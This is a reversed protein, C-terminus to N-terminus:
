LFRQIHSRKLWGVKDFATWLKSAKNVDIKCAQQADTKRFDKGIKECELRRIFIRRKSTLYTACDLRLNAALLREDEHLLHYNEDNRLDIPAGRWEVKLSNSREPQYANINPCYDPLANFDKDERAVKPGNSHEPTAREKQPRKNVRPAKEVHGSKVVHGVVPARGGNKRGQAPAINPYRKVGSKLARDELLYSRERELWLNRNTHHTKMVQSKFELALEYEHQKPPSAERFLNSARAAVHGNIKHITDDENFLPAQSSPSSQPESNPYLVPDRDVLAPAEDTSITKTDPSVPPSMPFNGGFAALVMKYSERAKETPSTDTPDSQTSRAFSELPTAEPPSMLSTSIDFQNKRDMM